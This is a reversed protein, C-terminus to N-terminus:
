ALGRGVRAVRAAITDALAEIARGHADILGQYGPGPPPLTIAFRESALIRGSAPAVIVYQGTFQLAGEPAGIMRDVAVEVRLGPQDFGPWPETGVVADLRTQLAAVLHRTLARRPTDAWLADRDLTVAGTPGISAIEIAEAYAPLSIDAVAISGAPSTARAAPEPPALLYYEPSGGCAALVLTAGLVLPLPRPMTM